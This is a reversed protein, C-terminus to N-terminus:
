MPLMVRRVLWDGLDLSHRRGNRRFSWNLCVFLLCPRRLCLRFRYCRRCECLSSPDGESVGVWDLYVGEFGLGPVFIRLLFFEEFLCVMRRTGWKMLSVCVGRCLLFRRRMIMRRRVYVDGLGVCCYPFLFSLM